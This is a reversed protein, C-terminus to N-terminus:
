QLYWQKGSLKDCIISKDNCISDLYQKKNMVRPEKAPPYPVGLLDVTVCLKDWRFLDKGVIFVARALEDSFDIGESIKGKIM